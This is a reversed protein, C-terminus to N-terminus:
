MGFQKRGLHQPQGKGSSKFRGWGTGRLGVGWVASWNLSKGRTLLVVKQQCFGRIRAVGGVPVGVYVTTSRSFHCHYLAAGKSESSRSQLAIEEEFGEGSM